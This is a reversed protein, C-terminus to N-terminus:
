LFGPTLTDLYRVVVVFIVFRALQWNINYVDDDDDDAAAPIFIQWYKEKERKASTNTNENKTERFLLM